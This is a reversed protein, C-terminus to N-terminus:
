PDLQANLVTVRGVELPVKGTSYTTNLKCGAVAPTVTPAVLPAAGPDIGTIWAIGANDTAAGVDTGSASHYTITAEAHGPLAVTNGDKTCAGNAAGISVVVHAKSADFRPLVSTGMLQLPLPQAVGFVIPNIEASNTPHFGAKDIRFWSPTAAVQASWQAPPGGTATGTGSCAQYRVTAGTVDGASPFISVLIGAANGSCSAGGEGGGDAAAEAGGDAADPAAGDTTADPASAEASADAKGADPTIPTVDDDGCAVFAFAASASCLVGLLGRTCKSRM